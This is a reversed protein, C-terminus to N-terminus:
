SFLGGFVEAIEGGNGCVSLHKIAVSVSKVPFSYVHVFFVLCGIIRIESPPVHVM